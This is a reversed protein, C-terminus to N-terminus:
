WNSVFGGVVRLLLVGGLQRGSSGRFPEQGVLGRGVNRRLRRLDARPAMRARDAIARGPHGGSEEDKREHARWTIGLEAPVSRLLSDFLQPSQINEDAVSGHLIADIPDFRKM